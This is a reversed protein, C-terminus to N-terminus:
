GTVTLFRRVWRFESIFFVLGRSGLELAAAAGAAVLAAGALAAVAVVVTRRARAHARRRRTFELAAGTLVAAAAVVALTPELAAGALTTVGGVAAATPSYSRPLPSRLLM